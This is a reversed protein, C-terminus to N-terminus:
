AAVFGEPDVDLTLPNASGGKIPRIEIYEQIARPLVCVNDGIALNSGENCRGLFRM